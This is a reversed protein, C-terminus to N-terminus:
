EPAAKLERQFQTILEPLRACCDVYPGDKCEELEDSLQQAKAPISRMKAILVRRNLELNERRMSCASM